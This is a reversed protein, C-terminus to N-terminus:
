VNDARSEGGRLVSARGPNLEGLHAWFRWEIRFSSMSLCACYRARLYINFSYILSCFLSSIASHILWFSYLYKSARCFHGSVCAVRNNVQLVGMQFCDFLTHVGPYSNGVNMHRRSFPNPFSFLMSLFPTMPIQHNGRGVDMVWRRDYPYLLFKVGAWPILTMESFPTHSPSPRTLKLNHIHEM